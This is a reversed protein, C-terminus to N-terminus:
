AFERDQKSPSVKASPIEAVVGALRSLLVQGVRRSMMAAITNPLPRMPQTLNILGALVRRSSTDGCLEEGLVCLELREAARGQATSLDHEEGFRDLHDLWHECVAPGGQFAHRYLTRRLYDPPQSDSAIIQQMIWSTSSLSDQVDFFIDRYDRVLGADLYSRSAVEECSLGSLIRAEVKLRMVPDEHLAVAGAVNANRDRLLRSRYYEQIPQFHDVILWVIPGLTHANRATNTRILRMARHWRWAPGYMSLSNSRLIEQLREPQEIRFDFNIWMTCFESGRFIGITETM